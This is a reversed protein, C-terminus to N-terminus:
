QDIMEMWIHPWTGLLLDPLVSLNWRVYVALTTVCVAHRLLGSVQIATKIITKLFQHCCWQFFSSVNIISSMDNNTPYSDM